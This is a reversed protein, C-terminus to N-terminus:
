LALSHLTAQPMVEPAGLQSTRDPEMMIGLTGDPDTRNQRSGDPEMKIGLTRDPEM